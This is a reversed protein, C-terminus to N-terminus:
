SAAREDAGSVDWGSRIAWQRISEHTVTPLNAEAAIVERVERWSRGDAMRLHEVRDRLKGRMRENALQQMASEVREGM